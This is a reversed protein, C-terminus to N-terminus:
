FHQQMVNYNYVNSHIHTYTDRTCSVNQTVTRSKEKKREAHIDGQVSKEKTKEM